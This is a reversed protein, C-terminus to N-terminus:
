RHRDLDPALVVDRHPLVDPLRPVADAAPDPLGRHVHLRPRAVRLLRRREAQVPDRVLRRPDRGDAAAPLDGRLRDRVGLLVLLLREGIGEEVNLARPEGDGFLVSGFGVFHWFFPSDDTIPGVKYPLSAYWADRAAGELTSRRARRASDPDDGRRRHLRRARGRAQRRHRRLRARRGDTFPSKKLLITASRSADSARRCPSWSTTSSTPSASSASRRARPASTACPATRSSTSTSRASSRACSATRTSTARGGRRDDGQHLPLERVPRLRGLHRREDRRLQGARGALDPRVGQGLGQSVLAGRREGAHRKPEGRHPRHLGQLADHLLSVTVPNLEIGTIHSPVSASRPSSRTAAPRASSRSRAPGAAAPPVPYSRDMNDYRGLSEPNGDYQM